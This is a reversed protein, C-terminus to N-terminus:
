VIRGIIYASAADIHKEAETQKKKIETNLHGKQKEFAAVAEKEAKELTELTRQKVALTNDALLKEARQTAERITERSAIQATNIIEQAQDEAERIKNLVEQAM